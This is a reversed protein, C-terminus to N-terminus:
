FLIVSVREERVNVILNLIKCSLYHPYL